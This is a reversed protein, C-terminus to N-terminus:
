KRYWAYITNEQVDDKIFGQYVNDFQKSKDSYDELPDVFKLLHKIIENQFFIHRPSMEENDDININTSCQFEFSPFDYNNGEQIFLYQVYPIIISEQVQFGCVYIKYKKLLDVENDCLDFITHLEKNEDLYSYIEEVSEQSINSDDDSDEDSSILYDEKERSYKKIVISADRDIFFDNTIQKILYQSQIYQESM